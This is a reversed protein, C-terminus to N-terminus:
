LRHRVLVGRERDIAVVIEGPALSGLAEAFARETADEPTDQLATFPSEVLEGRQPRRLIGRIVLVRALLPLDGFLRLLPRGAAALHRARPQLILRRQARVLVAGTAGVAAAIAGVVLEPVVVTDVLLLYLAFLLAFWILWARRV